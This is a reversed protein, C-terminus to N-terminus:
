RIPSINSNGNDQSAVVLEDTDTKIDQTRTLLTDVNRSLTVINSEGVPRVTYTVRYTLDFEVYNAPSTIRIVLQVNTSAIANDDIYTWTFFLTPKVTGPLVTPSYLPIASTNSPTVTASGNSVTLNTTPLATEVKTVIDSLRVSAVVDIAGYNERDRVDLEIELRENIYGDSLRRDQRARGAFSASSAM